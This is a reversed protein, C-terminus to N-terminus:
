FLNIDDFPDTMSIDHMKMISELRGVIVVQNKLEALLAIEFFIEHLIISVFHRFFYGLLDNEAESIGEQENVVLSNNMSVYFQGINQDIM